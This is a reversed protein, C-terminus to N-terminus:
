DPRSGALDVRVFFVDAQYLQLTASNRFGDLIWWPVFGAERMLGIMEEILTEGRYNPVLPLEMQVVSVRSLSQRAGEIVNREFGQTDIKLWVKRADRCVEDFVDDLRRVQVQVQGKYSRDVGATIREDLALFSSSQAHASVNLMLQGPESGLAVPHVNWPPSAAAARRCKEVADPLPEFSEIRGRYGRGRIELGYEGDNAGVDLVCDIRFDRLYQELPDRTVRRGSRELRRALWQKLKLRIWGTM